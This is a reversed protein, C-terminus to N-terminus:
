QGGNELNELQKEREKLEEDWRALNDEKETYEANIRTRYNIINLNKSNNSIVIFLILLILFIIN